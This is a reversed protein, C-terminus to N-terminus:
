YNLRQIINLRFAFARLHSGKSTACVVNNFIEHIEFIYNIDSHVNKKRSPPRQGFYPIVDPIFVHM